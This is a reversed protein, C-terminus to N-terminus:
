DKVNQKSISKNTYCCMFDQLKLDKFKENLKAFSETKSQLNDGNLSAVNKIERLKEAAIQINNNVTHRFETATGYACGRKCNDVLILRPTVSDHKKDLIGKLYEYVQQENETQCIHVDDGLYFELNERFGGPLSILNSIGLNSEDYFEPYTNLDIGAKNIHRMLSLYTVNYRILNKTHPSELEEKRGICPGLIALDDNIKLYKKLYIAVCMITSQFPMLFDLLKPQHKKIYSVIAPCPQSIMVTANNNRIYNLYAWITLDAWLSVNYFKNVGLSKLYGLINKHENTYNLFFSPSVLLSIKKGYKLDAFFASCDDRFQRAGHTCVDICKGCFICENGNVQIKDTGNEDVAVFNARQVPCKRICDQCGICRATDTYILGGNLQAQAM